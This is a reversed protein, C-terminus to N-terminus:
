FDINSGFLTLILAEGDKNLFYEPSSSGSTTPISIIALGQSAMLNGADIPIQKSNLNELITIQSSNMRNVSTSFKMFLDYTIEHKLYSGFIKGLLAPKDIDDSASILMLLNQNVKEQLKPKSNIEEFFAGRQEETEKSLQSCFNQLKKVFMYDSINLGFKSLKVLAGIIPIDKALGSELFSDLGVEGLGIFAEFAEKKSLTHILEKGM